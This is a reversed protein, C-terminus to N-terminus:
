KYGLVKTIYICNTDNMGNNYIEKSWLTTLQTGSIQIERVKIYYNGSLVHSFQLSMATVGAGAMAKQSGKFGSGDNTHFFVEVYSYNTINNSLTVGSQTPTGNWLIDPVLKKLSTIDNTNTAINTTNTSTETANNNVVSKIENMDDDTVKNIDAVSPNENLAVKNDYTITQIAM